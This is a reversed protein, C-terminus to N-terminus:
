IVFFGVWGILAGAIAGATVDRVFHVGALVRLPALLLTIFGLCIGVPPWLWFGCVTIVAGSFLHRSPFSQGTTDKPTLPAIGYVEYPRPRNLLRRLISGGIFVFAPILIARIVRPDRQLLLWGIMLPYACYIPLPLIKNGIRLLRLAKPRAEFWTHVARYNRESM